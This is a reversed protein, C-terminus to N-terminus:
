RWPLARTPLRNQGGAWCLLRKQQRIEEPVPYKWELSQAILRSFGTTSALWLIALAAIILGARTRPNHIAALALLLLIYALGLPYVFLPLLKSLFIFM